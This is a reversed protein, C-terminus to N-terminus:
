LEKEDIKLRKKKKKRPTLHHSNHNHHHGNNEKSAKMIDIIALPKKHKNRKKKKRKPNCKLCNPTKDRVLAATFCDDHYLHGCPLVGPTEHASFVLQCHDCCPPEQAEVEDLATFYDWLVEPNNNSSFLSSGALRSILLVPPTEPNSDIPTGRIGLMSFPMNHRLRLHSVFNSVKADVNFPRSACVPCIVKTRDGKHTEEVHSILAQLDASFHCLPCAFDHPTAVETKRIKMRPNQLSLQPLSKHESKALRKELRELNRLEEFISEPGKHHVAKSEEVFSFPNLSKKQKSNMSPKSVVKNHPLEDVNLLQELSIIEEDESQQLQKLYSKLFEM